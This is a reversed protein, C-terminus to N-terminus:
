STQHHQQREMSFGHRNQIRLLLLAYHPDRTLRVETSLRRSHWDIELRSVFSFVPEAEIDARKWPM